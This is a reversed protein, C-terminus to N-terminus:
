RGPSRLRRLYSMQTQVVRGDEWLDKQYVYIDDMLYLRFAVQYQQYTGTLEILNGTRIGRVTFSDQTMFVSDGASRIVIRRTIDEGRQVKFATVTLTQSDTAAMEERYENLEVERGTTLTIDVNWWAGELYRVIDSPVSPTEGSQLPSALLTQGVLGWFLLLRGALPM